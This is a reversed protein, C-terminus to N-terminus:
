RAIATRDIKLTSRRSYLRLSLGADNETRVEERYRTYAEGAEIDGKLKQILRTTFDQVKITRVLDIWGVYTVDSGFANAFQQCEPSLTCTDLYIDDNPNVTDNWRSVWGGRGKPIGSVCGDVIVLRFDLKGAQGGGNVVDQTKVPTQKQWFWIDENFLLGIFYKMTNTQTLASESVSYWITKNRTLYHDVVNARTANYDEFLNRGLKALPEYIKTKTENEKVGCDAQLVWGGYQVEGDKSVHQGHRAFFMAGGTESNVQANPRCKVHRMPRSGPILAPDGDASLLDFPEVSRWVNPKDPGAATLNVEGIQEEGGETRMMLTVPQNVTDGLDGALVEVYFVSNDPVETAPLSTPFPPDFNRYEAGGYSALRVITNSLSFNASSLAVVIRENPSPGALLRAIIAGTDNTFTLSNADTEAITLTDGMVDNHVEMMITDPQSNDLPGIAMIVGPANHVFVSSNAATEDCAYFSNVIGVPPLSVTAELYEQVNPDNLPEQNLRVTLGSSADSYLLPDTTDRALVYNTGLFTVQL